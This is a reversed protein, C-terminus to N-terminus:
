QLVEETAAVVASAAFPSYKAVTHADIGLQKAIAYASPPREGRRVVPM